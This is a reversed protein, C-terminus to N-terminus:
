EDDDNSQRIEKLRGTINVLGAKASDEVDALLEEPTEGARLAIADILMPVSLGSLAYVPKGSKLAYMQLQNCPTGAYLDVLVICGAAFSEICRVMEEGFLEPNDGPEISCSAINAADGAIMRVSDMIGEAFRGHSLLVIGITDPDIAGEDLLINM